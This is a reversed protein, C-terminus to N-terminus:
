LRYDNPHKERAHSTLNSYGTGKQKRVRGCKCTWENEAGDVRTNYSDDALVSEILVVLIFSKSLGEPHMIM